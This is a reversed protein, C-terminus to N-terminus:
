TLAVREASQRRRRTETPTEGFYTRYDKAFQGLHWFGADTAIQSISHQSGGTGHLLARRAKNLRLTRIYAIPTLGTVERFGYELSRVKLRAHRCLESLRLPEALRAHIFDRALRVAVRRSARESRTTADVDAPTTVFHAMGSLVHDSLSARIAPDEVSAPQETAADLLWSIRALMADIWNRGPAAIVAGPEVGLSGGTLSELQRECAPMDFGVAVDVYRGHSVAELFAGESLTICEGPGMLQARAFVDGSGTGPIFVGVMGRPAHGQHLLTKNIVVSALSIGDLEVVGGNASFQGPRLQTFEFNWDHAQENFQVVDESHIAGYRPRLAPRHRARRDAENRPGHVDAMFVEEM